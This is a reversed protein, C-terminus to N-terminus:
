IINNYGFVPIVEGEVDIRMKDMIWQVGSSSLNVAINAGREYLRLRVTFPYLLISGESRSWLVEEGLADLGLSWYPANLSINSDTISWLSEVVWDVLIKIDVDGGEQKYGTVDVFRFMKLQAPDDFDFDKTQVEIDIAQGDDDFGYEQQYMQGGSASSFLYQQENDENIYQGYDYLTPYNYETWAGVLSSYVLTTDPRNDNDTDFSFYYNNLTKIYQSAGANYQKEKVLETLTRVNDSLPKSEIGNTWGVGSRKTLTDIGRENFYALTNGVSKITRDAYWWTQSDIADVSSGAVNVSYIKDSKFALVIQGYQNLGNIVGQEDGGIVVANQSINIGTTPTADTYYLTSPNNDDGAGYLRDGLYQIYRLRPQTLKQFQLTWSGNDTFGLVSGGESTSLTFNDNDIRTITYVTYEIVEAPLTGSTEVFVVTDNTALWHTTKNVYETTNDFTCTTLTGLWLYSFTTGDYSTYPDVGNGMYAVNKYVAFDWRSRNTITMVQQEFETLTDVFSTRNETTENYKYMDTGAVCIAFREQTSDHQRFFYSTIPNSGIPNGFKRYWRRTQLQQSNNYFVNKAIALENDEIGASEALNLWWNFNQFKKIAM